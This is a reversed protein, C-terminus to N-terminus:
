HLSPKKVVVNMRVAREIFDEYQQNDQGYYKAAYLINKCDYIAPIDNCFCCIPSFYYSGEFNYIFYFDCGRQDFPALQLENIKIFNQICEDETWPEFIVKDKTCGILLTSFIFITLISKM